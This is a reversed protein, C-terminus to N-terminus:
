LIVTSSKRMALSDETTATTHKPKLNVKSIIKKKKKGM